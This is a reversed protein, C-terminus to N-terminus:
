DENPVFELTYAAGKEFHEAAAGNLTMQVSLSPTAHAWDKNRGDAYDAGFAVLAHQDDGEGSVDKRTCTVKATIM